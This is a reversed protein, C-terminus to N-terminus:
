RGDLAELVADHLLPRFLKIKQNARNPEVRNTLLVVARGRPPDLWLSTGTFGLHGVGEKPWRAGASSGVASPRDWGLCWTSGPVGSPKWFERVVAPAVIGAEGRWVALLARAIAAVERANSFLGAHGAVGGMARANEDHVVGRLGECPACRSPDPPLYRTGVGLPRAVERAFRADLPEGTKEEVFAGLLIFGLDSYVSRTGPPFELPERRVAELIEARSDGLRKWAPLGSAHALLDRVTLGPRPEEDLRLEGRAVLQMVLTTTSLPKTLSALDFITEETAQGVATSFLEAGQGLVVLQAAFFVDGVAGALIEEVKAWNTM